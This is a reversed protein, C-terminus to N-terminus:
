LERKRGAVVGGEGRGKKTVVRGGENGRRGGGGGGGGWVFGCGRGLSGKVLRVKNNDIRKPNVGKVEEAEM